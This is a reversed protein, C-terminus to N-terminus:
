NNVSTDRQGPRPFYFGDTLEVAHERDEWWERAITASRASADDGYCWSPYIGAVGVLYTSNDARTTGEWRYYNQGEPGIELAALQELTDGVARSYRDDSTM